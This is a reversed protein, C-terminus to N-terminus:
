CAHHSQWAYHPGKGQVLHAAKEIKFPSTIGREVLLFHQYCRIICSFFIIFVTMYLSVTPIEFFVTIYM